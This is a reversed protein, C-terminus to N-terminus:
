IAYSCVEQDRSLLVAGLLDLSEYLNDFLFGVQWLIEKQLSLDDCGVDCRLWAEQDASIGVDFYLGGIHIPFKKLMQTPVLKRCLDSERELPAEPTVKIHCSLSGLQLCQLTSEPASKEQYKETANDNDFKVQGAGMSILPNWFLIHIEGHGSGRSHFAYGSKRAGEEHVVRADFTGKSVCRHAVHQGSSCEFFIKQASSFFPNIWKFQLSDEHYDTCLRNAHTRSLSIKEYSERIDGLLPEIAKIRDPLRYSNTCHMKGIFDIMERIQM